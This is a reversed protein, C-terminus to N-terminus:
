PGMSGSSCLCVAHRRYPSRPLSDLRTMHACVSRRLHRFNRAPVAKQRGSVISDYDGLEVKLMVRAEEAFGWPLCRVTSYDTCFSSEYHSLPLLLYALFKANSSSSLSGRFEGGSDDRPRSEPLQSSCRCSRLRSRPHVPTCHRM